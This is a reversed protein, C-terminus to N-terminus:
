YSVERQSCPGEAGILLRLLFMGLSWIDAKTSLPPDIVGVSNSVSLMSCEPARFGLTGVPAVLFVDKEPLTGKQQQSSHQMPQLHDSRDLEIAADFDSVVVSCKGACSCTLPNDHMCHMKILINSATTFYFYALYDVM